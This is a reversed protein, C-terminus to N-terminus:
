IIVAENSPERAFVLISSVLGHYLKCRVERGADLLIGNNGDTSRDTNADEEMDQDGEDENDLQEFSEDIDTQSSTGSTRNAEINETINLSADNQAKINQHVM